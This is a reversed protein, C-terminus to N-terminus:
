ICVNLIALTKYYRALAAFNQCNSFANMWFPWLKIFAHWNEGFRTVSVSLMLRLERSPKRRRPDRKNQSQVHLRRLPVAATQLAPVQCHARVKEADAKWGREKVATAFVTQSSQPSALFFYNLLQTWNTQPLIWPTSM